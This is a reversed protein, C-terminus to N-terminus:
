AEFVVKGGVMTTLVKTAALEDAPTALPDRDLVILDAAYGPKLHGRWAEEFATHAPQHTMARLAEEMDISQSSDLVYGESTKRDMAAQLGIFPNLKSCPFDSNLQLPIGLDLATRVPMVGELEDDAFVRRWADGVAEIFSTQTSLVLGLDKIRELQGDRAPLYAHEIRHRREALEPRPVKLAAFADLALDVARQGIAHVAIQLGGEHSLRIGDAFEASDVRQLGFNDAQGPYADYVMANGFTGSGDVSFKVGGLKLWEDGFGSRLGTRLLDYVSTQAALGRVYFRVRVRPPETERLVMWDSIQDPDRPMEHIAVIGASSLLEVARSLAGIRDKVSDPPIVTDSRNADLRLKAEEHLVGTPVGDADREIRGGLPDQTTEDIGAEELARSNAVVVHRGVSRLVVPHGHSVKDLEYRSPFRGEALRGPELGDGQIWQGAPAILAREGVASAVADVSDVGLGEFDLHLALFGSARKFHTHSDTFGPLITRGDLDVQEAGPLAAKVDENSGVFVIKDDDIAIAQHGESPSELTRVLGNLFVRKAM